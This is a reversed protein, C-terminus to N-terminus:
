FYWNLILYLGLVNTYEGDYTKLDYSIGGTLDLTKSHVYTQEFTIGGVPYTSYGDEGSVGGRLYVASLWKREYRIFNVWQVSPTLLLSWEYKPSYYDVDQKSYTGYYAEIGGRIKVDPHNYLNQNYRAAGYTYVNSDSFWQNAATFGYERLDSELYSVGASASSATVGQARARIPVDMSFSNYDVTIRLPDTPWWMLRTDSGFESGRVYDVSFSQWWIIEPMVIWRFGLGVRNWDARDDQGQSSNWAEQRLIEANLSFLPTIPKELLLSVTYETSGSFEKVFRFEPQLHWMMDVQLTEWLDRVNLDTPYRQRIEDALAMAERKYNLERLTWGLGTLGKRDKPDLDLVVDFQEQAQRPWHRWLYAHALGTRLNTNAAAESLYNDFYAEGEKLQDQSLLYWGKVVIVNNVDAIYQKRKKVSTNDNFQRQTEELILDIEQLTKDAKDWQRLDTYVYVLGILAKHPNEPNGELAMRYQSEAEEPKRVYLYADGAAENVWWPVPKGSQRFIGFQELAETMQEARSLAVILDGRAATNGPDKELIAQLEGIAAAYQEWRIKHIASVIRGAEPDKSEMGEAAFPEDYRRVGYLDAVVKRMSLITASPIMKDQEAKEIVGSAGDPDGLRLCTFVVGKFAEEDKSDYSWGLRYLDLAQQYEWLDYYDRAVNRPVYPITRLENEHRKYLDIAKQQSGTWGLCLIYDALLYKDDPLTKLARELLPLAEDNRGARIKKLAEEYDGKAQAVPDVSTQSEPPNAFVPISLFLLALVLATIGARVPM